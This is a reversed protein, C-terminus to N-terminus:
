VGLYKDLAMPRLRANQLSSYRLEGNLGQADLPGASFVLGHFRINLGDSASGNVEKAHKPKRPKCAPLLSTCAMTPSPTANRRCYAKVAWGVKSNVQMIVAQIPVEANAKSKLSSDSLHPGAHEPDSLKLFDM